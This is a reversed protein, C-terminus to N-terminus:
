KKILWVESIQCGRGNGGLGPEGYWALDLEGRETAEHPIDFELPRLPAPKEILSHVEWREGAVLRVKRRPNEGAYFVRIKYRAAPDLGAYHMRVPADYLSEAHDWWSRRRTGTPGFGVFTTDSPVLHPQHTTDGLDDYFGGPGPDTWNLIQEIGALRDSESSAARLERFRQELWLRSNLPADITDLTAGRDVAIAKYRPVSLQMRISQFLAEALEFDRARLDGAVRDTVAKHLIAEAESMARESGEQRAHRLADMAQRELDTEFFLRRRTYADYYARYLGQQFRWNALMQPTATRELAEFHALTEEVGTNAALPGKWDRELEMLGHAFSEGYRESIFYRGYERLIDEVKAEPNWALASWVFKNVDDNCGESYTIFGISYPAQLRFINAYDRPRPNIVERGETLAYAVDWDPVPFQCEVSHTIDPYLRIPYREPIKKRLMPLDLRTQPGYVVGALWGPLERGIMDLFENTWVEDFSQPSAWMQARPHFRRLNAWQKELLPLMYIPRTHGPDGVPVYVADVRPLAEFVKAWEHLAFEVTKPDSYDRDMAPYWLWVDLGYADALRSMEVMMRMPPLPFHPSDPADDSRPPILEITNTGFVALDRVYQEWM